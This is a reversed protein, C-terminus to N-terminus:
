DLAPSSPSLVGCELSPTQCYRPDAMGLFGQDWGETSESSGRGGAKKGMFSSLNPSLPGQGRPCCYLTQPLCGERTSGVREGLPARLDGCPPTPTGINPDGTPLSCLSYSLDQSFGVQSGQVKLTQRGSWLPQAQKDGPPEQLARLSHRPLLPHSCLVRAQPDESSPISPRVPGQQETPLLMSTLVCPSHPHGPSQQPETIGETLPSPSHVAPPPLPLQPSGPCLGVSAAAGNVWCMDWGCGTALLGSAALAQDPVGGWAGPSWDHSLVGTM